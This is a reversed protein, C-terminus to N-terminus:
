PRRTPLLQAPLAGEEDGGGGGVSPFSLSVALGLEAAWWLVLKTHSEVGEYRPASCMWSGGFPCAVEKELVIDGDGIAGRLASMAPCPLAPLLLGWCERPDIARLRQRCEANNRGVITIHGVKRQDAVEAKGYWHM